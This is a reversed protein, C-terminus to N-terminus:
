EWEGRVANLHALMAEKKHKLIGQGKAVKSYDRHLSEIFSEPLDLTISNEDESVLYSKAITVLPM